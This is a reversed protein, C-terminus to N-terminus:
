PSFDNLCVLEAPGLWNPGKGNATPGPDATFAAWSPGSTFTIVSARTVAVGSVQALALVAIAAGAALAALRRIRRATRRGDTNMKESRERGKEVPAPGQSRDAPALLIM